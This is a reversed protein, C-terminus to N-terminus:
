PVQKPVPLEIELQPDLQFFGGGFGGGGFQGGQHDFRPDGNQIRDIVTEILDHIQREHRVILVSFSQGNPVAIGGIKQQGPAAISSVGPSSAIRMLIEGKGDPAEESKWSEPKVLQPLVRELDVAVQEHLRYYRVIVDEPSDGEPKRIRSQLLATRYNQLLQDIQKLVPETQRVVMVGVRPGYLDGISTDATPGEYIWQGSTQNQVAQFLADVETDDRCLDEVLFVAIKFNEDARSQNTVWLVGDAITWTLKLRALLVRLVSSLKRDNLTLSIPERDRIRLNKLAVRDLRVDVKSLEALRSVVEVLPTDVFDVSINEELALRLPEHQPSDYAFRMRSPKRLAEFLGLIKRHIVDNQRIFLVDALWELQGTESSSETGGEGWEGEPIMHFIMESLKDPKYGFDILDSLSYSRTIMRQEAQKRSTVYVLDDEVYWALGLSSLRDFLLYLPDDDLRESITDLLSGNPGFEQTDFVVTVKANEQVWVAVERLSTEEFEVTVKQALMEPVLTAPDVTKPEDPIEPLKPRIFEAAPKDAEVPAEQAFGVVGTPLFVGIVVLICARM